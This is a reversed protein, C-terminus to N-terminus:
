GGKSQRAGGLVARTSMAAAGLLRPETKSLHAPWEVANLPVGRLRLIADVIRGPVLGNLLQASRGLRHPRPGDDPPRPSKSATAAFATFAPRHVSRENNPLVPLPQPANANLPGASSPGMRRPSAAPAAWLVAATSQHGLHHEQM